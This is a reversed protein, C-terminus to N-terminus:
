YAVYVIRGLEENRTDSEVKIRYLYIGPPVLQLASSRGDWSAAFEGKTGNVELKRVQKGALDFINVKVPRETRLKLRAFRIELVDNVGDGNPTIASPGESLMIVLDEQPASFARSTRSDVLETADRNELDVQQWSDGRSSSRVQAKFLSGSTIVQSTFRMEILANETAGVPSRITRPFHIWLSDSSPSSLVTLDADPEAFVQDFSTKLAVIDQDRSTAAGSVEVRGLRVYRCQMAAIGELLVEDFGQGPELQARIFYSFESEQGAAIDEPRTYDTSDPIAVPAKATGADTVLALEGALRAAVPARTHITLARLTSHVNPHDSILAVQLQIFKRPSPSVFPAITGGTEAPRYPASFSSWGTGPRALYEQEKRRLDKFTRGWRSKSIINGSIDFYLTDLAVEDGTRSQIEVRSGESFDGDWEIAILNKVGGVDILPSRLTAEAVYGQGYIQMESLVGENGWGGIGKGTIDLNRLDLLRVKRPSFGIQVRSAWNVQNDEHLPRSLEEWELAQWLDRLTDSQRPLAFVGESARLQYGYFNNRNGGYARDDFFTIFHIGDVWYTVGLDVLTLEDTKGITRIQGKPPTGSVKAKWASNYYIGDFALSGGAGGEPDSAYGGREQLGLGINDGRAWVEIESLQPVERRFYHVNGKESPGLDAYTQPVQGRQYISGLTDVAARRERGGLTVRFYEIDGQRERPLQDYTAADVEEARGFKSDTAILQVYHIAAGQLDAVGDGDIDGNELPMLPFVFRRQAGTPERTQGVLRFERATSTVVQPFAKSGNSVFLAFQNLADGDEAFQVVISDAWVLRGLDVEVVWRELGELSFDEAGPLWGTDPNGDIINAASGRISESEASAGGSIPDPFKRVNDKYSFTKADLVANINKQLFRPRLGRADVQVVNAQDLEVTLGTFSNYLQWARWHATRNVVIREGTRAYGQQGSAESGLSCFMAGTGFCIFAYMARM